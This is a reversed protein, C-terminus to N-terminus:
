RELEGRPLFAGRLRILLDILHQRTTDTYQRDQWVREIERDAALVVFAPVFLIRGRPIVTFDRWRLSLRRDDFYPFSLRLGRDLQHRGARRQIEEILGEVMRGALQQGRERADTSEQVVEIRDLAVETPQM